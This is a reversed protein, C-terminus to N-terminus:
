SHRIPTVGQPSGTEARADTRTYRAEGVALVMEDAPPLEPPTALDSHYIGIREARAARIRDGARRYSAALEFHLKALDDHLDYRRDDDGKGALRAFFGSWFL